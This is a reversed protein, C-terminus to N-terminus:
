ADDPRLAELQDRYEDAKVDHGADPDHEHRTAYFDILIDLKDITNEHDPGFLRRSLELGELYNAEAVDPRDFEMSMQGIGGPLWPVM